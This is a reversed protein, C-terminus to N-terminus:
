KLLIKERASAELRKGGKRETTGGKVLQADRGHQAIKGVLMVVDRRRM